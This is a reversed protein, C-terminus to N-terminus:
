PFDTIVYKVYCLTKYQSMDELRFLTDVTVQRSILRPYEVSLMEPFYNLIYSAISFKMNNKKTARIAPWSPRKQSRVYVHLTSLFWYFIYPFQHTPTNGLYPPMSLRTEIYLQITSNRYVCLPYYIYRQSWRRLQLSETSIFNLHNMPNRTARTTTVNQPPM